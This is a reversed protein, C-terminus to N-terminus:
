HLHILLTVLQRCVPCKRGQDSIMKACDICMNCHRCPYLVVEKESSLCVVCMNDSNEEEEGEAKEGEPENAEGEEHKKFLKQLKEQKPDAGYIAMSDYVGKNMEYKHHILDLKIAPSTESTTVTNSAPAENTPNSSVPVKITAIPSMVKKMSNPVLLDVIMNTGGNDRPSINHDVSSVESGSRMEVNGGSNDMSSQQRQKQYDAIIDDIDKKVMDVESDDSLEQLSMSDVRSGKHLKKPSEKQPNVIKIDLETVSAEAPEVPPIHEEATPLEEFAAPGKWKNGIKKRTRTGQGTNSSMSSRRPSVEPNGTEVGDYLKKTKGGGVSARRLSSRRQRADERQLKRHLMFNEVTATNVRFFYAEKLVTILSYGADKLWFLKSNDLAASLLNNGSPKSRLLSTSPYIVGAKMASKWPSSWNTRVKGVIVLHQDANTGENHDVTSTKDVLALDDDLGDLSGGTSPIHGKNFRQSSGLNAINLSSNSASSAILVIDFIAAKLKKNRGVVGPLQKMDIIVGFKSSDFSAKMGAPVIIPECSLAVRDMSCFVVFKIIHLRSYSVIELVLKGSRKYM